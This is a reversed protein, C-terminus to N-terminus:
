SVCTSSRRTSRRPRRGRPRSWRASLSCPWGARAARPAIGRPRAAAGADDERGRRGTRPRAPLARRGAPRAPRRHLADAPVRERRRAGDRGHEARLAPVHPRIRGPADRRRRRRPGRPRDRVRGAPTQLAVDHILQDYGRQLFTSYIAVVPRMGDCALGAALTVAHQEAIAVDFYREPFRQEFEVM